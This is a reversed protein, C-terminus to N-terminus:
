ISKYYRIYKLIINVKNMKKLNNINIQIIYMHMYYVYLICVNRRINIDNDYRSIFNKLLIIKCQLISTPACYLFTKINKKTVLHVDM